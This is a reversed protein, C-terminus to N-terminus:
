NKIFQFFETLDLDLNNKDLFVIKIAELINKMKSPENPKISFADAGGTIANGLDKDHQSTTLMIIFPPPNEKDRRIMTLVELGTLKPMNIDLLVVEPHESKILDFGEEGDKAELIYNANVGLKLLSRKILFREGENDDVVLIKNSM